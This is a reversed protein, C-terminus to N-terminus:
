FLICLPTSILWRKHYHTSYSFVADICTSQDSQRAWVVAVCVVCHVWLLAHHLPTWKMNDNCNPNCNKEDVLYQVVTLHGGRCISLFTLFCCWEYLWMVHETWVSRWEVSCLLLQVYICASWVSLLLPGDLNNWAMILCCHHFFALNQM